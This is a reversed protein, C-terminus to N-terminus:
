VLVCVCVDAFCSNRRRLLPLLLLLLLLLPILLLLKGGMSPFLQETLKYLKPQIQQKGGVYKKDKNHEQRKEKKREKERGVEGRGSRKEGM